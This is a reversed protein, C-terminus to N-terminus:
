VSVEEEEIVTEDNFAEQVHKPISWPIGLNDAEDKLAQLIEIDNVEGAAWGLVRTALNNGIADRIVTQLKFITDRGRLKKRLLSKKNGVVDKVRIRKKDGTLKRDKIIKVAEYMAEENPLGYLDKIQEQNVFGAAAEQQIAYPLKLLTSRVQVWGYSVELKKAIEQASLGDNIFKELAKAEQLLNLDKRKLNESLNMIRAQEETLDDRIVAPIDKRKLNIFAQFRRHGLVIRYKYGEKETFPQIVISQALGHQDIDRALEVVDIPSIAGRCNFIPDSYIEAIPVLMSVHNKSVEYNM